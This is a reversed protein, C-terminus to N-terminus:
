AGVVELVLETEDLLLEPELELLEVDVDELLEAAGDGVPGTTEFPLAFKV